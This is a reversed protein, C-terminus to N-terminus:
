VVFGVLRGAVFIEKKIAVGDLYKRAKEGTKAMALVEEKESEASISFEDRVKGNIQVVYTVMEDVCLDPNFEPWPTYAISKKNKLVTKWIEEALHPAFPSILTIFTIASEKSMIKLKMASNACIMLQSVATNFKFNDIDEGVKKITKHLVSLFEKQDEVGEKIEVTHFINYIKELFRRTGGVSGMSWAKSQEFPGMFMEYVRLTDAGYEEVVDDPNVVNGLSKSMKKGDEAMILGQNVLKKFPEKTSVLKLDYLFKHWFRGYLLHLVAHEAGGVYLDVPGWYKEKKPDCLAKDNKPDMFRLWYWSSGAWNPMTSTERKAKGGCKPCETNVWDTIKALPSEGSASPKYDPTEPLKLPLDKEDLPVVGCEECHVLPIPEGWYRQRTFIWDRLKYNIKKRGIGKKELFEIMRQKAEKTQLGNLFDSNEAIGEGTFVKDQNTKPAQVVKKNLIEYKEAFEFDREDHAPVAMIAGTGYSMLVYDAIWIPLKENNVPNIVYAGTFVGNKEKNLETREMDSKKASKKIYKEVEKKQDASVIKKLLPNEPSMVFYTAGFLTDPRTTYATITEYDSFVKKESEGAEKPNQLVYEIVRELADATKIPEFHYGDRWFKLYKNGKSDVVAQVGSLPPTLGATIKDFGIELKIRRSSIGKIINMLKGMEREEPDSIVLHVHDSMVVGKAIYFNNERAIKRFINKLKLAIKENITIGKEVNFTLLYVSSYEVGDLDFFEVGRVCDDIEFDIEAGESKGIWNKQMARIKNPWDLNKDNLDELLRDAYRTIGLMWQKLNRREVIEGCREHTGSEVEENACVVRCKPCWNMSMEKEYALGNKFLQLFIWQSWKFYEPDTSDIERDWDYSFGLSQIQRKFTKINEQTSIKPHVGTKVAYNEAPLGFADWGMPHLVEFGDHRRKRCIIDTATYGLPHGVHLGAGSPYPFMDLAYYKPKKSFDKAAFTKNKAWFDQWKPEIKKHDYTM